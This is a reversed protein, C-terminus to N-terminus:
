ALKWVATDNNNFAIQVYAQDPTLSAPVVYILYGDEANSEGPYLYGLEGGHSYEFDSVYESSHLQHFYEIEQIQIPKDHKDYLQDPLYHDPDTFYENGNYWVHITGSNPPWVRTDGRNVLDIFIILYQYGAPPNQTYYKNDQNNRWHYTSNLWYRYVTGESTVNGCGFPFIAKPALTDSFMPTPTPVPTATTTPVTTNQPAPTATTAPTARPFLSPGTCGCVLLAAVALGALLVPVVRNHLM